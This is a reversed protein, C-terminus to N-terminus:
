EVSPDGRGNRRSMKLGKRMKEEYRWREGMGLEKSGAEGGSLESRKEGRLRQYRIQNKWRKLEFRM